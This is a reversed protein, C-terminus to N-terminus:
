NRRMIAHQLCLALDTLTIGREEFRERLADPGISRELAKLILVPEAAIFDKTAEIPNREWAAKFADVTV